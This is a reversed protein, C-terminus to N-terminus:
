LRGAGSLPDARRHSRYPPHKGACTSACWRYASAACAACPIWCSVTPSSAWVAPRCRNTAPMCRGWLQENNVLLDHPKLVREGKLRGELYARSSMLQSRLQKMIERYPEQVEDGGARARLEPTCETMSLESVLVPYRPHVPRLSELPQAAACPPHNRRDREPQRRPRRGDLPSACRCRKRRCATISPTKWSSTSSACSRRCAKGCATKVVAFGWKAEDIPSPRHKRIEDTHWSQAVLQRLRRM